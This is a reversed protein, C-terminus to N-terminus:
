SQTNTGSMVSRANEASQVGDMTTLAHREERLTEGYKRTGEVVQNWAQKMHKTKAFIDSILPPCRHIAIGQWRDVARPTETSMLECPHFMPHCITELKTWSIHLNQKYLSIYNCAHCFFASIYKLWKLNINPPIQPFKYQQNSRMNSINFLSAILYM